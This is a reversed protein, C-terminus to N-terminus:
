QAEVYNPSLACTNAHEIKDNIVFCGIETSGIVSELYWKNADLVNKAISESYGPEDCREGVLRAIVENNENCVVIIDQM